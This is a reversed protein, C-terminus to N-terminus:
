RPNAPQGPFSVTPGDLAALAVAVQSILEALLERSARDELVGVAAVHARLAAQEGALASAARRGGTLDDDATGGAKELAAGILLTRAAAAKRLEDGDPYAVLAAQSARLQEAWVERPVVEVEDPPGCGAVLLAGGAGLLGRRTVVL